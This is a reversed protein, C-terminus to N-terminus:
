IHDTPLLSSHTALKSKGAYVNLAAKTKIKELVTKTAPNVVCDFKAIAQRGLLMRFVMKERNTLTIEIRRTIGAIHALTEIVLRKEAKGGSDTVFRRDIIPAECQMTLKSNRQLPHIKFRVWSIGRRKFTEIDFAHLASTKAGTDIKAKILPIGLQPLQVWENWGIITKEKSM